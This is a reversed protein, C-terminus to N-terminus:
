LFLEKLAEFYEKNLYSSIDNHTAGKLIILKKPENALEFLKYSHSVAVIEDKDGHSILVPCNIKKILEKSDWFDDRVLSGPVIPYIEKAIDRLSTFSSQVVISKVKERAGLELAIAGGISRGYLSIDNSKFGKQILYKYMACADKIVGEITPKGTSKGYGKYDVLLFNVSIHKQIEVPATYWTSVNQANGHLYIVTKTTKNKAPFFYGHLKENDETDIFVEEHIIGEDAPSSYFEKTPYFILSSHINELINM